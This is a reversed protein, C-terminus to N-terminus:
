ELYREIGAGGGIVLMGTPGAVLRAGRRAERLPLERVGTSSVRYAHSAGSTDDGVVFAADPGLRAADLRALPVAEPWSAPVCATTCALDLVRVLGGGGSGGVLAVHSTDLTVASSDRVPDPAFPLPAALTAGPALLEAGAGSADGGVVVLGRGELFTASAGERAVTTSAFSAKGEPSVVLIRTTPGGANRTAGVIYQTGDAASVLRGGAVESFSGGTPAALTASTGEALDYVTAGLEDILLAATDVTAISRAPRPLALAPSTTELALLDYVVGTSSSVGLVYRGVVMAAASPEFSAPGRPMRVLENTRQVFIQLDTRELAGWQVFLTEGRVVTRGTADLGRVAFAGIESRVQDGLDVSDNPLATRSIETRTGDAAVKETVLVVAAPARSFVDTEEGTVISVTGRPTGGCSVSLTLLAIAPSSSWLHRM